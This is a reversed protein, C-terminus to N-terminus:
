RFLDKLGYVGLGTGLGGLGMRYLNNDFEDEEAHKVMYIREDLNM